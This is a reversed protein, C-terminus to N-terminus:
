KPALRYIEVSKKCDKKSTAPDRNICGASRKWNKTTRSLLDIKLQARQTEYTEEGLVRRVGEGPCLKRRKVLLGIRRGPAPLTATLMEMSARMGERM